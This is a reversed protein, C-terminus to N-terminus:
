NEDNEPLGHLPCLVSRWWVQEGDIVMGAGYANDWSPCCCGLAVAEPSGPHPADDGIM